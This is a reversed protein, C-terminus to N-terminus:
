RGSAISIRQRTACIPSVIAVLFRLGHLPWPSRVAVYTPIIRLPDCTVFAFGKAARDPGDIIAHRNNISHADDVRRM